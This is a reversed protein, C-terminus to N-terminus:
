FPTWPYEGLNAALSQITTKSKSHTAWGNAAFFPPSRYVIM